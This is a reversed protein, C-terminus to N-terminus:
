VSARLSPLALDALGYGKKFLYENDRIVAIMYGTSSDSTNEFLTDISQIIAQPFQSSCPGTSLVLMTLLSIIKM